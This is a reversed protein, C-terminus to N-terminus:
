SVPALRSDLWRLSESNCRHPAVIFYLLVFAPHARACPPVCGGESENAAAVLDPWPQTQLPQVDRTTGKECTWRFFQWRHEPFFRVFRVRSIDPWLGRMAQKWNRRAFLQVLGELMYSRGCFSERLDTEALGLVQPVIRELGYYPTPLATKSEPENMKVIVSILDRLLFDPKATSDYTRSHWFLALWNPIASEGWARMAARNRECFSHLFSFDREDGEDPSPWLALVSVLGILLTVRYGYVASDVTPIGETLKERSKLEESMRILLKYIQREVLAFQPAWYRHHLGNREAVGLIYGGLLTWAEIEAWHNEHYTHASTVLATLVAASAIARTLEEDGPHMECDTLPLVSELIRALKPKGLPGMGSELYFELLDKVESIGTPWFNTQLHRAKSLLEGRVITNLRLHPMGLGAFRGNLDDIARIVEEELEGNTVLYARHNKDAPISPHVIRGTVLGFVQNEIENRWRTLTIKAGPAGKLQYACPSGDPAISLVDKGMEMACHRTLHVVTHGEAALMHCFPVQFARENARDLWNEVVRELM